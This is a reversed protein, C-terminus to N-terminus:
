FNDEEEEDYWIDKRRSQFEGDYEVDTPAISQQDNALDFRSAMLVHETAYVYETIGPAIYHKRIM